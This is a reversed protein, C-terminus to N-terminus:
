CLFIKFIYRYTLLEMIIPGKGDLVHQVVFKTTDRVITVDMGSVRIGPIMDGKKYLEPNSSSRAVSTGMGYNNNEIVYVIPLNQLKALNFSEFIQGNNMAGDGLITFTIGGDNAYKHAFGLGTGLSVQAGVVGNGGYFNKLFLHM